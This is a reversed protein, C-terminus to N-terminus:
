GRAIDIAGWVLLAIWVATPFWQERLWTAVPRESAWHIIEGAYRALGAILLLALFAWVALIEVITIGSDVLFYLVLGALAAAVASTMSPNAYILGAFDFWRRPSVSVVLLKATAFAIVLASIIELPGFTM